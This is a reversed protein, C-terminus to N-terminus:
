DELLKAAAGVQECAFALADDGRGESCEVVGTKDVEDAELSEDEVRGSVEAITM